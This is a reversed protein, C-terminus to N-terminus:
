AGERLRPRVKLRNEIGEIGSLGQITSQAIQKLYYSPVTGHLSLIGEQSSCSIFWLEPYASHRLLVEAQVHPTASRQQPIVQLTTTKQQSM